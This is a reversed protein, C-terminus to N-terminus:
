IHILSLYIRPKSILYYGQDFYPDPLAMIDQTGPYGFRCDGQWVIDFFEGANISDGEPMMQHERNAIACGNTYFLLNGEADSIISNNSGHDITGQFPVITFPKLNFNFLVSEVGEAPLTNNSMIWNYDRKNQSILTGQLLLLLIIKSIIRM